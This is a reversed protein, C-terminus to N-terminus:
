DGIFSPVSGSGGVREAVDLLVYLEQSLPPRGASRSCAQGAALVWQAAALLHM